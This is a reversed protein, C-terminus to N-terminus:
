PLCDLARRGGQTGLHRVAARALGDHRQSLRHRLREPRARGPSARPRCRPPVALRVGAGALRGGPTGRLASRIGVIPGEGAVFRRDASLARSPDDAQGARVSVFVKAVHREALEFARDLQSKGQYQLAAKDRKMRSSAGGALILGYVPPTM